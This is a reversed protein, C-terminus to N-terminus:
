EQSGTQQTTEGGKITQVGQTIGQVGEQIAEGPSGGSLLSVTCGSIGGLIIAIGLVWVKWSKSTSSDNESEAM